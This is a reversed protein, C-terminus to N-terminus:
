QQGTFRVTSTVAFAEPAFADFDTQSPAETIFVVVPLDEGPGMVASMRYHWGDFIGYRDTNGVEDTLWFLAVCPEPCGQNTGEPLDAVFDLGPGRMQGFSLPASAGPNIWPHGKLWTVFEDPASVGPVKTRGGSASPDIAARFRTIVYGIGPKTPDIFQIFQPLEDTLTWGEGLTFSLEPDFTTSAYRGAPLPGLRLPSATQDPTVASATPAPTPDPSSTPALAVASPSPTTGAGELQGRVLLGAGVLLIAAAVAAVIATPRVDRSKARGASVIGPGGKSPVREPSGAAAAAVDAMLAQTTAYRDQPDKAMGRILVNDLAALEPREESLLPPAANVHAWLTAYESMREFPARGALTHFAVAALSYVDARGDVPRGEVQEPAVYDASGVFQGTRTFGADSALEKVLGFDALYAQEEASRPSAVLINAPKVDRHVLGRAHAADLAGAVGGLLAVVRAADLKGEADLLAKLDTGDIFRMALYLRGDAEGAEYVTVINPHDLSAALRSESLFRERFQADASLEPALLKLAVRRELVRHMALYVEGMGGRGLLQEIQYGAFLTGRGLPM